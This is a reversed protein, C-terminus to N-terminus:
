EHDFKELRLSSAPRCKEVCERLKLAGDLLAAIVEDCEKDDLLGLDITTTGAIIRVEVFLNGQKVQVQM